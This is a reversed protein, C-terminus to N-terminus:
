ELLQCVVGDVASCIQLLIMQVLVVSLRPKQHCEEVDMLVVLHDEPVAVRADQPTWVKGQRPIVVRVAAAPMPIVVRRQNELEDMEARKRIVVVLDLLLPALNEAPLVKACPSKNNSLTRKWDLCLYRYL